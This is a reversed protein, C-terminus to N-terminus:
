ENRVKGLRRSSLYHPFYLRSQVRVDAPVTNSADVEEAKHNEETDANVDSLVETTSPEHLPPPVLTSDQGPHLTVDGTSDSLNPTPEGHVADM